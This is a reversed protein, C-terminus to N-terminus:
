SQARKVRIEEPAATIQYFRGVQSILLLQRTDPIYGLVKGTWRRVRVEPRDQLLHDSWEPSSWQAIEDASAGTSWAPGDPTPEYALHPWRVLRGVQVSVEWAWETVEPLSVAEDGFYLSTEDFRRFHADPDIGDRFAASEPVMDVLALSGRGATAKWIWADMREDIHEFHNRLAQLREPPEPVEPWEALLLQARATALVKAPATKPPLTKGKTGNPYFMRALAHAHLVVEQAKRIATEWLDPSFQSGEWRRYAAVYEQTADIVWQARREIENLYLLLVHSSHLPDAPFSRTANVM